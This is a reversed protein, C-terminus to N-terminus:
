LMAYYLGHKHWYCIKWKDTQKNTRGDMRWIPGHTQGDIRREWRQRERGVEREWAGCFHSWLDKKQCKWSSNKVFTIKVHFIINMNLNDWEQKGTIFNNWIKDFYSRLIHFFYSPNSLLPDVHFFINWSINYGINRKRIFIFQGFGVESWIFKAHGLIINWLM